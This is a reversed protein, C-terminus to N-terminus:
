RNILALTEGILIIFTGLLLLKQGWSYSKFRLLCSISTVWGSAFLPIFLIILFLSIPGTLSLLFLFSSLGKSGVWDGLRNFIMFVILSCLAAGFAFGPTAQDEKKLM